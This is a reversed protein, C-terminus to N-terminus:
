KKARPHAQDYVKALHQFDLHTYVQTTSLNAHGLLEQVARLNGSSELIHSAFSHRLKHPHLTNHLGQRKAWYSLRQQVQRTCLRNGLKSLFLATNDAKIYESRFNLWDKIASLAKAGIPLLRQKNGKGVVRLEASSLDFDSLDIAVLESLRIGSSYFLEMIAKDRYEITKEPIFNLLQSVEDVEMNKPLPKDAKPMSLLECPNTDVIDRQLLYKYLGKLASLKLQISRPKLQKKRLSALWNKLSKAEVSSWTQYQQLTLYECVEDLSAQYSNLTHKSYGREYKLYQM